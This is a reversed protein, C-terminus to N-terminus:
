GLKDLFRVHHIVEKWSLGIVFWQHENVFREVEIEELVSNEVIRRGSLIIVENFPCIHNFLLLIM